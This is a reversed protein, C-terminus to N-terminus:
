FVLSKQNLKFIYSLFKWLALISFALSESHFLSATNFPPLIQTSKPIQSLDATCVIELWTSVLNFCEKSPFPPLSALSDSNIKFDSFSVEVTNSYFLCLSISSSPFGFFGLPNQFGLFIQLSARTERGHGPQLQVWHFLILGFDLLPFKKWCLQFLLFYFFVRCYCSSSLKHSVANAILSTDADSLMWREM